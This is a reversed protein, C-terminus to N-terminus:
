HVRVARQISLPPDLNQGDAPMAHIERVLDDPYVKNTDMGLDIARNLEKEASLIDGTENYSVGILFRAERNNPEQQLANKLQEHRSPETLILLPINKDM